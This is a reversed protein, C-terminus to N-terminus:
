EIKKAEITAGSQQHVAKEVKGDKGVVFKIEASVVKWFFLEPSKAYIEFEPQGTM